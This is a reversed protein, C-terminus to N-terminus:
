NNYADYYLPWLASTWKQMCKLTTNSPFPDIFHMCQMYLEKM